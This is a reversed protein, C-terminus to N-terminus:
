PRTVKRINMAPFVGQAMPMGPRNQMELIRKAEHDAEETSENLANIFRPNAALVSWEEDSFRNAFSIKEERSTM